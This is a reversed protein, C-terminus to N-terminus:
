AEVDLKIQIRNTEVLKFSLPTIGVVNLQIRQGQRFRRMAQNNVRLLDGEFNVLLQNADLVEEITAWVKQGQKLSSVTPKM